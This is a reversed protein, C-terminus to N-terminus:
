PFQHQRHISNPQNELNEIHVGLVLAALPIHPNVGLLPAVPAYFLLPTSGSSPQAVAGLM